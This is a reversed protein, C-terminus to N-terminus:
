CLGSSIGRGAAGAEEGGALAAIPVAVLAAAWAAAIRSRM